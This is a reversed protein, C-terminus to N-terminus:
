ILLLNYPIYSNSIQRHGIKFRGSFIFNKRFDLSNLYTEVNKLNIQYKPILAILGGGFFQVKDIFAVKENRTLTSIYICEQNLKEDVSSFNRLAGFEFWNSENFQRIKRDILIQKNEIMYKNLEENQTPFNKILIYKETKNESNLISINGYEENKFIEEKGSVLGVYIDFYESILVDNDEFSKHFTILGDSNKIYMLEENYYLIKDLDKNKQYRFVIVDISAGEFLNENNPHYIHTFTGNNMMEKLIKVSGTLKFFDSPVIFILEGDEELLEYCKKIFDIYLNSNKNTVKVYPPNGIITKYKKDIKIKLFDGFNISNIDIFNLFQITEDIEYLDFKINPNNELVKLVLDGRGMSPELILDPSNLIFQYVVDKLTENTTFFQGLSHKIELTKSM